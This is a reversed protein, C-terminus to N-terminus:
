DPTANTPEQKPTIIVRYRIHGAGAPVPRKKKTARAAPWGERPGVYLAPAYFKDGRFTDYATVVLCGGAAVAQRWATRNVGVGLAYASRKM